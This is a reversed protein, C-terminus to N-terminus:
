VVPEVLVRHDNGCVMFYPGPRWRYDEDLHWQTEVRQVAVGCEHCPPSALAIMEARTMADRRSNDAAQRHATLVVPRPKACDTRELGRADDKISIMRSNSPNELVTPLQVLPREDM